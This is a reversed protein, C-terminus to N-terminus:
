ISHTPPWINERKLFEYFRAAKLESSDPPCLERLALSVAEPRLSRVMEMQEDQQYLGVSESTVQVILQSGVAGEIASLAERYIDPDLSHGGDRDRVHLHLVSVQQEVLAMAEAALESATMPLAAHDVQTRRAGNPASMIMVRERAFDLYSEYM